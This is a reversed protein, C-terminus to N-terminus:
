YRCINSIFPTVLWLFLVLTLVPPQIQRTVKSRDPNSSEVVVKLEQIHLVCIEEGCKHAIGQAYSPDVDQKGDTYRLELM